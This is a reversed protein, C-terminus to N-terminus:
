AHLEKKLIWAAKLGARVVAIDIPGGVGPVDGPMLQIGDTFRQVAITIRIMAKAFDIADQLTMTHWQIVYELGALQQGAVQGAQQFVPLNGIRPDWGKIIRSVVDFQGIWSAGPNNTDRLPVVGGPINCQFVTGVRAQQDYGGVLFQLAIQGPPTPQDHGQATHWQYVTNFYSFLENAIAQVGSGPAIKSKFEEVLSAINRLSAAGQPRLFAWGATVALVNETLEFVKTASDSGVRAGARGGHTQRSEGAVVIGESTAVCIGLSM